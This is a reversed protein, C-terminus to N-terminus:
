NAQKTDNHDADVNNRYRQEGFKCSFFDIGFIQACKRRQLKANNSNNAQYSTLSHSRCNESNSLLTRKCCLRHSLRDLQQLSDWTRLRTSSRAPPPSSYPKKEEEYWSTAKSEWRYEICRRAVKSDTSSSCQRCQRTIKHDHRNSLRRKTCVEDAHVKSEGLLHLLVKSV